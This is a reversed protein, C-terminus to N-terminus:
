VKERPALLAQEEEEEERKLERNLAEREKAERLKSARERMDKSLASLSQMESRLRRLKDGYKEDKQIREFVKTQRDALPGLDPARHCHRSLLLPLVSSLKNKPGEM